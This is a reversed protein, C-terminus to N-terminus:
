REDELSRLAKEYGTESVAIARLLALRTQPPANTLAAKLREPHHIAQYIVMTRLKARQESTVRAANDLSAAEVGLSPPTIMVKETAPAPTTMMPATWRAEGAMTMQHTGALDAIRALHGDLSQTTRQVQESESKSALYVIEAVRRDALRAHLEAKRLPSPTLALRAQESARKVAYLPQDPMSSSAAAVTGGSVLLLALVVAVATAWQPQGVWSFGTRKKQAPMQRLAVYFQQRARERFEPSPQVATAKRTATAIELLSKLEGAHEPYRRLCEEITEGKVLVLELCEEFIDRFPRSRRM